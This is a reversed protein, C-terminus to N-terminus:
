GHGDPDDVLQFNPLDIEVSLRAMLFGQWTAQTYPTKYEGQEYRSFDVPVMSKAQSLMEFDTRWKGLIEPSKNQSNMKKEV